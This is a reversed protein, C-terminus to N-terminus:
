GTYGGFGSAQASNLTGPGMNGGTGDSFGSMGMMGSMDMGAMTSFDASMGNPQGGVMSMFGGDGMDMGFGGTLDASGPMTPMGLVGLNAMGSMNSMNAGGGGLQSADVPGGMRGMNTMNNFGNPRGGGVPHTGASPMQAVYNPMAVQQQQQAMPNQGPGLSSAFQQQQQQQRQQHLQQQQQQQQTPMMPGGQMPMGRAMNNAVNPSMSNRYAAFQQQAALGNAGPMVGGAAVMNQYQQQQAMQAMQQQRNPAVQRSQGAGAQAHSMTALMQQRAQLAQQQSQHYALQQASTPRPPM